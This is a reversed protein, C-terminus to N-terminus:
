FRSTRYEPLPRLRRRSVMRLWVRDNAGCPRQVSNPSWTLCAPDETEGSRRTKIESVKGLDFGFGADILGPIVRGNSVIQRKSWTMDM